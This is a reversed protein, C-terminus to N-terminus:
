ITVNEQASSLGTKFSFSPPSSSIPSITDGNKKEGEEEMKRELVEEMVEELEEEEKNM